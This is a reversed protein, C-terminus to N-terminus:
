MVIMIFRPFLLCTLALSALLFALAFVSRHLVGCRHLTALANVLKKTVTAADKESYSGKSVIRDFLEGGAVPDILDLAFDCTSPM